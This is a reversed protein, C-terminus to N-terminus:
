GPEVGISDLFKNFGVFTEMVGYAEVIEADSYGAARLGEFELAAVDHPARNVKRMLTVLKAERDSFDAEQLKGDRIAKLTDDDVGLSQLAMSHARICYECGNDQSVLLAITEKLKRPLAGEMMTAKLKQWNARLLSPHHAYTRFLNPRRGMGREIEDLIEKAEFSMQEDSLAPIHPM